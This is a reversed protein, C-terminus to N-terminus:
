YWDMLADHLGLIKGRARISPYVWFSLFVLVAVKFTFDGCNTINIDPFGNKKDLFLGKVGIWSKFINPRMHTFQFFWKWFFDSWFIFFCFNLKLIVCTFLFGFALFPFKTWVFFFLFFSSRFHAIFPNPFGNLFFIRYFFRFFLLFWFSLASQSCFIM